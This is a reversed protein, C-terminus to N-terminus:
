QERYTPSCICLGEPSKNINNLYTCKAQSMTATWMSSSLDASLVFLFCKQPSELSNWCWTSSNIIRVLVHYLKAWASLYVLKCRRHVLSLSLSVGSHFVLTSCLLPVCCAAAPFSPPRGSVVPRCLLSLLSLLSVWCGLGCSTRTGRSGVKYLGRRSDIPCKLIAEDVVQPLPTLFDSSVIEPSFFM